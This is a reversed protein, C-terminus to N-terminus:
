VYQCVSERCSARGIEIFRWCIKSFRELNPEFTLLIGCNRGHLPMSKPCPSLCLRETFPFSIVSPMTFAPGRCAPLKRHNMVRLQPIDMVYCCLHLEGLVTVM